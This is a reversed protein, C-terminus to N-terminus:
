KKRRAMMRYYAKRHRQKKAESVLGQLFEETFVIDIVKKALKSLELSLRLSQEATPAMIEGLKSAAKVIDQVINEVANM